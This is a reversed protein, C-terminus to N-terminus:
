VIVGDGAHGAHVPIVVVPRLEVTDPRVLPVAYVNVTVLVAPVEGADAAEAATVGAAVVGPAGVARPPPLAVAVDDDIVSDQVGGALLPPEGIMRYPRRTVESLTVQDAYPYGGTVLGAPVVQVHVPRVGPV